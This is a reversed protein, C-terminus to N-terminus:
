SKRIQFSINLSSLIYPARAGLDRHRRTTIPNTQYVLICTGAVCVAEESSTEQGGGGNRSLLSFPGATKQNTLIKSLGIELITNCDHILHKSRTHGRSSSRSSSGGEVDM